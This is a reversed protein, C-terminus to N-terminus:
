RSREREQEIDDIASRLREETLIWEEHPLGAVLKFKLRQYIEQAKDDDGLM